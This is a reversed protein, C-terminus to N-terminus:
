RLGDGEASAAEGKMILSTNDASHRILSSWWGTPTLMCYMLTYKLFRM